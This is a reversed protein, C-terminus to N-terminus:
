HSLENEDLRQTNTYKESELQSSSQVEVPSIAAIKELSKANRYRMREREMAWELAGKDYSVERRKWVVGHSICGERNQRGFNWNTPRMKKNFITFVLHLSLFEFRM